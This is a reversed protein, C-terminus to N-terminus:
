GLRIILPSAGTTWEVQAVTSDRVCSLSILPVSALAFACATRTTVHRDVRTTLAFVDATLM